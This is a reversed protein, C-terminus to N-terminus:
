APPAIRQVRSAQKQARSDELRKATEPKMAREIGPLYKRLYEVVARSSPPPMRPHSVPRGTTPSYNESYKVKPQQEDEWAKREPKTVFLRDDLCANALAQAGFRRALENGIEAGVVVVHIRGEKIHTKLYAMTGACGKIRFVRSWHSFPDVLHGVHMDIAHSTEYPSRLWRNQARLTAIDRELARLLNARVEHLVPDKPLMPLADPDDKEFYLSWTPVQIVQGTSGIMRRRDPTGIHTVEVVSEGFMGANRAHVPWRHGQMVLLTDVTAGLLLSLRAYVAEPSQDQRYDHRSVDAVTPMREALRALPGMGFTSFGYTAVPLAPVTALATGSVNLVDRAVSTAPADRAVPVSPDEPKGLGKRVTNAGSDNVQWEEGGSLTSQFDFDTERGGM